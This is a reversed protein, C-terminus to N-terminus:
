FSACALDITITSTNDHIVYRRPRSSVYCRQSSKEGWSGVFMNDSGCFPDLASVDDFDVFAPIADSLFPFCLCSLKSIEDCISTLLSHTFSGFTDTDNMVQIGQHLLHLCMIRPSFASHIYRSIIVNRLFYDLLTRWSPQIRHCRQSHNSCYISFHRSAQNYRSFEEQGRQWDGEINEYEAADPLKQVTRPTYYVRTFDPWSRIQSEKRLEQDTPDYPIQPPRDSVDQYDLSRATPVQCYEVV